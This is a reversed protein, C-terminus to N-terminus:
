EEEDKTMFLAILVPTMFGLAYGLILGIWVPPIYM